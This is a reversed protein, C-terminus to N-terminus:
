TSNRTLQGWIIHILACGCAKKPALEWAVILWITKQHQALMKVLCLPLKYPLPMGSPDVNLCNSRVLSLSYGVAWTATHINQIFSPRSTVPYKRFPKGSGRVGMEWQFQHKIITKM